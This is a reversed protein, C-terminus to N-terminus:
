RIDDAPPGHKDCSWQAAPDGGHEILHDRFRRLTDGDRGVTVFIVRATDLDAVVTLYKHGVQYSKDDVGIRRVGSLDLRGLADNVHHTVIRWLRTDHERLERAVVAMPANQAKQMVLAQFHYNFHSGAQAWPVEARHVGHEACRVRVPRAVLFSKFMYDDLTRWRREPGRDYVPSPAQCKPCALTVVGNALDVRVELEHAVLAIDTVHWPAVIGVGKAFMDQFSRLQALIANGDEPRM